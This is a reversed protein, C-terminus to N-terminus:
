YIYSFNEIINPCRSMGPPSSIYDSQLFRSVVPILLVVMLIGSYHVQTADCPNPWRKKKKEPTVCVLAFRNVTTFPLIYLPVKLTGSTDLYSHASLLCESRGETCPTIISIVTFIKQLAHGRGKATARWTDYNFRGSLFILQIPLLTATRNLCKTVTISM